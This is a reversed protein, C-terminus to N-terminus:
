YRELGDIEPVVFHLGKKKGDQISLQTRSRNDLCAPVSVM